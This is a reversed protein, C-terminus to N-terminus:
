DSKEFHPFKFASPCIKNLFCKDCKPKKAECIKRGHDILMYTLQFWDKKDFIEMLDREIKIPDKENSLGLRKSLRRVHTDVAIGEVIGFANGLVINATKRAVGPLKLLEEMSNPVKGGYKNLIIKAINIINRAKNRYFGTPKIDEEFEKLDAKAYDEITKYKKFLKKTVQNVREDTCQASLVVAVLLEWGTTFNLAVKSNPYYVKLLSVIQRALEKKNKIDM